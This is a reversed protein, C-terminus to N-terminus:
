HKISKPLPASERATVMQAAAANPDLAPAIEFATLSQRNRLNPNAGAKLLLAV